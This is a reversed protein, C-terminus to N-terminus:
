KAASKLLTLLDAEAEPLGYRDILENANSGNSASSVAQSYPMSEINSMAMQQQKEISLKLKKEVSILRQGVGMAASNVAAVEHTLSLIDKEAQQEVQSLRKNLQVAYSAVAVLAICCVVLVIWLSMIM